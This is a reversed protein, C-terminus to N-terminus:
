FHTRTSSIFLMISTWDMARTLDGLEARVEGACGEVVDRTLGMVMGLQIM